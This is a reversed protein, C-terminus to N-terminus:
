PKPQDWPSDALVTVKSTVGDGDGLVVTPAATLLLGAAAALTAFASVVLKRMTSM